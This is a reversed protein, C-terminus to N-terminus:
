DNKAGKPKYEKMFKRVADMKITGIDGGADLRDILRSDGISQRGFRPHKIGNKLCFDKIDSLLQDRTRTM